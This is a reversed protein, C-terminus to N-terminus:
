EVTLAEQKSSELYQMLAKALQDPCSTNKRGCKIGELKECVEKIDMGKVLAGIGLLNGPCGGTFGVSEVIDNDIKIDIKKSCVGKPYYCLEDM